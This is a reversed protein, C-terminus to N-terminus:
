ASLSEEERQNSMLVCHGKDLLRDDELFLSDMQQLLSTPTSFAMLEELQYQVRALIDAMLTKVKDKPDLVDIYLKWTDRWQRYEWGATTTLFNTIRREM